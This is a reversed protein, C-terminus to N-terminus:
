LIECIKVHILWLMNYVNKNNVHYTLRDNTDDNDNDIDSLSVTIKVSLNTTLIIHVLCHECDCLTAYDGTEYLEIYLQHLM